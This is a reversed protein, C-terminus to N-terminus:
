RPYINSSYYRIPFGFLLHGPFLMSVSQLVVWQVVLLLCLVCVTACNCVFVKLLAVLERKRLLIIAVRNPNDLVVGCFCFDLM